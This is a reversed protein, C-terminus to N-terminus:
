RPYILQKPVMSSDLHLTPHYHNVVLIACLQRKPRFLRYFRIKGRYNTFTIWIKLFYSLNLSLYIYNKKNIINIIICLVIGVLNVIIRVPCHQFPAEAQPRRVM